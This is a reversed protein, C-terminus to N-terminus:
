AEVPEHIAQAVVQDHQEIQKAAWTDQEFTKSQMAREVALTEKYDRSEAAMTWTCECGISEAVERVEQISVRFFEKRANVKNVQKKVFHRHLDRELTPADDCRILAHVDFDFPVSADGLERIRDMPELRRTLGIKYVHEGFSGVNSIVYVYGARTQQAMSVARQNKEEAVKLREALQALQLEYKTKQEKSASAIALQAKEMAGRLVDEEKAAEKMAREFERQAREEERIRDKIARQEEREKVKLEHVMVAWKLEDLRAQLYEPAVRANRFAQGHENVLTFADLVKQRLTGFNDHRVDAVISDFKGNFADLVFRTATRRRAEEVYDCASALEDKIMQKVHQRTKKLEQGAEAFGFEDALEDLLGFTPVLYQDGYGEVVNKLARVTQELEKGREMAAYADGAIKHAHEQAARVIATSEERAAEIDHQARTSQAFAQQAIRKAENAAQSIHVEAEMKARAVSERANHDASQRHAEADALLEAVRNKRQALLAEADRAATSAEAVASARIQVAEETSQAVRQNAEQAARALLAAAQTEADLITEYKALTAIRRDRQAQSERLEINQTTTTELERLASRLRIALVVVFAAAGILVFLALV